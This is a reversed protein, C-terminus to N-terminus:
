LSALYSFGGPQTIIFNIASQIYTCRSLDQNLKEFIFSVEYKRSTDEQCGFWKM